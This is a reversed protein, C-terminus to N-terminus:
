TVNDFKKNELVQNLAYAHFNTSVSFYKNIQIHKNLQM